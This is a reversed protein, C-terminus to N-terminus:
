QEYLAEAKKVKNQWYKVDDIMLKLKKTPDYDPKNM